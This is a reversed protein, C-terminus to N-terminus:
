RFSTLFVVSTDMRFHYLLRRIPSTVVCVCVCACTELCFLTVCFVTVKVVLVCWDQICRRHFTKWPNWGGIYVGVGVCVLFSIHGFPLLPQFYLLWSGERKWDSMPGGWLSVTHNSGTYWMGFGQARRSLSLSLPFLFLNIQFPWILVIKGRVEDSHSRKFASVFARSFLDSAVWVWLICLKTLLLGEKDKFLHVLKDSCCNASLSSQIVAVFQPSFTSILVSITFTLFFKQSWWWLELLGALPILLPLKGLFWYHLVTPTTLWLRLQQLMHSYGSRAQYAKVM